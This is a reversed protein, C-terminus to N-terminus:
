LPLLTRRFVNYNTMPHNEFEKIAFIILPVSCFPLYEKFYSAIKVPDNEFGGCGFAGLVLVEYRMFSAFALIGRIRKKMEADKKVDLVGYRQKEAAVSIVDFTVFSHSIQVKETFILENPKIPYFGPELDVLLSTNRCLHEEQGGKLWYFGCPNEANAMNLLLTKGQSERCVELCDKNIVSVEPNFAHNLDLPLLHVKITKGKRGKFEERIKEAERRFM